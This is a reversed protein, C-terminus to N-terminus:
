PFSLPVCFYIFDKNWKRSEKLSWFEFIYYIFICCLVIDKKLKKIFLDVVKNYVIHHVLCEFPYNRRYFQVLQM